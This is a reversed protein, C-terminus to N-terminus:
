ETSCKEKDREREFLEIDDVRFRGFEFEHVARAGTEERPIGEIEARPRENEEFADPCEDGQAVEQLAKRSGGLVAINGV